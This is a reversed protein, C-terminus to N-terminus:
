VHLEEGATDAKPQLITVRQDALRLRDTAFLSIAEPYALCEEAFVRAALTKWTDGHRVPVRRQLIIPGHDYHNDCFHVTCGSERAGAALVAEHVRRGFMGPGGFDPLLAPHINMVRGAYEPPIRWLWLFGALCVLDGGAVGDTLARQFSEDDFERRPVVLTELGRSRAREVGPADPRSSIVRVIRAPLSGDDIRDQLNMVTRGGGSIMAVLNLTRRKM